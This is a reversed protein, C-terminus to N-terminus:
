QEVGHSEMWDPLYFGGEYTEFEVTLTTNGVTLIWPYELEPTWTFNGIQEGGIFVARTLSFTPSTEFGLGKVIYVHLQPMDSYKWYYTRNTVIPILIPPLFLYMVTVNEKVKGLLVEQEGEVTFYLGHDVLRGCTMSIVSLMGFIVICAVLFAKVEKDADRM